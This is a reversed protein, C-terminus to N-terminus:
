REEKKIINDVEKKLLFPRKSFLAVPIFHESMLGMWIPRGFLIRIRAWLTPKWATYLAGDISRLVWIPDVGPTRCTYKVTAWEHKIPHIDNGLFEKPTKKM